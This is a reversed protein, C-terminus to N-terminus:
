FKFQVWAWWKGFYAKKFATMKDSRLQNITKKVVRKAVTEWWKVLDTGIPLNCGRTIIACYSTPNTGPPYFAM